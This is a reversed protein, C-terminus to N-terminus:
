LVPLPLSRTRRRAYLRSRYLSWVLRSDKDLDSGSGTRIKDVWGLRIDTLQQSVFKVFIVRASDQVSRSCDLQM